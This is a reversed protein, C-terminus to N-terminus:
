IDVHNERATVYRVLYNNDAKGKNVIQTIYTDDPDNIMKIRSIIAIKTTHSGTDMLQLLHILALRKTLDFKTLEILCLTAYYKVDKEKYQSHSISFYLFALLLESNSPAKLSRLYTVVINLIRILAYADSLDLSLMRELLIDNRSPDFASLFLDYQFSLIFNTDKEFLFMEYGSSFDDAHKIMQTQIDNWTYEAQYEYFIYQLLKIASM